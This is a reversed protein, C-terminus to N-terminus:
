VAVEPQELGADRELHRAFESFWSRPVIASWASSAVSSSRRRPIARSHSCSWRRISITPKVM